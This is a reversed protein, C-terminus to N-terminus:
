GGERAGVSGKSSWIGWEVVGFRRSDMRELMGGGDMWGRRM